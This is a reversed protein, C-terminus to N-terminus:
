QLDNEQLRIELVLISFQISTEYVSDSVRFLSSSNYGLVLLADVLKPRIGTRGINLKVSMNYTAKPQCGLSVNVESAGFGLGLELWKNHPIVIGPFSVRTLASDKDRYDVYLTNSRVGIAFDVELSQESLITLFDGEDEIYVRIIFSYSRPFRPKKFVDRADFTRSSKVLLEGSPTRQGVVLKELLDM